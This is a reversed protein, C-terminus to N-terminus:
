PTEMYRRVVEAPPGADPLILGAIVPRARAPAADPPLSLALLYDGAALESLMVAGSDILVGDADLLRASVRDSDARVGAGVARDSPVTFSFWREEGASLMVSAGLGEGIPIPADLRATLDGSLAGEGLPRVLVTSVGAGIWATVSGGDALLWTQSPGREPRLALVAPMDLHLHLLGPADTQVTYGQFAGSLPVAAPLHLPTASIAQDLGWLGDGDPGTLWAVAAGPETHLDLVGGSSIALQRDTIPIVTGDDGTWTASRIAGRLMVTGDATPVAVQLHAARSDQRELPREATLVPATHHSALLELRGALDGETPNLLVVESFSGWLLTELAAGDAHRVHVTGDTDRIAAVAGSELSLRLTGPEGPLSWRAAGGAEATLDSAGWTLAEARPLEFRWSRIRAILGEGDGSWLRLIPAAADLSVAAAAQPSVAAPADDLSLGPQGANARAIVLTVGGDRPLPWVAPTDHVSLRRWVGGSLEARQAVVKQGSVGVLTLIGQPLVVTGEVVTCPAGPAPCVTVPEAFVFVGPQRLKVAAVGVGGLNKLSVGRDLRGEADRGLRDADVQVLVAEGRHDPTWVRLRHESGPVAPVAVTPDVGSAEGLVQWVGDDLREVAVGVSEAATAGAVVVGDTPVDLPILVADAGPSVTVEGPAILVPQTPEAPQRFAVTVSARTAGVPDVQLRYTGPPLRTLIQFNWGGPRDDSRALLRDDADYLRARVDLRGVSTLEVLGSGGVAIPISCPAACSRSRGATLETARVALTYSVGHNRRASRVDLHYSGAPLTGRWPRGPETALIAQEGSWLTGVMGASLEITAAVPAALSFTWRDPTREPTADGDSRPELWTASVPADLALPHPGHGTRRATTTPATVTTVVRGDVAGPLITLRYEGPEFHQSFRAAVGPARLPWGDASELRCRPTEGERSAAITYHGAETIRLRYVVGEGGRLHIRGDIGPALTGGDHLTVATLAMGLHGASRGQTTATVQYDGERLYQEIRFNRGAGNATAADLRPLTQTRLTGSLALLGTSELVYLGPADVRVSATTNAGASLDFALPRGAALEPLDPMGDLSMRPLGGVTSLPTHRLTILAVGEGGNVVRVRKSGPTVSTGDADAEWGDLWLSLPEESRASLTGSETFAADLTISQGPALSLPLAETLDLPLTRQIVGVSVGPQSEFRVTHRGAKDLIVSPFQLSPLIPLAPGTAADPRISLDLIGRETPSLTLRYFGPNLAAVDGSALSMPEPQAGSGDLVVPILRLETNPGRANFSWKGVEGVELLLSATGALNFRREYRSVGSLAVAGLATITTGDDRHQRLVLGTADINDGPVGSHITSIWVPDDAPTLTAPSTVPTFHQLRYPQGAAGRVTVIRESSGRLSASVVPKESRLTIERTTGGTRYPDGRADRVSLQASEPEPLALQVWTARVRWRDIGLASVETQLQGVAGLDPIGRRVILPDSGDDQAWPLGPGGYATVRYLGADLTLSLTCDTMPQGVRPRVTECRPSADILWAGERWIRFDELHRGAAELDVQQSTDLKMWYSRQQFDGMTSSVTRADTLSLPEPNLEEFRRLILHVESEAAPDGGTLVRYEGRSLFADIRGDRVGASGSRGGPGAMRDVLQLAVGETSQAVISYRGFAEVSLDAHHQGSAPLTDPALTDAAAIPLLFLLM